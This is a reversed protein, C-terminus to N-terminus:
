YGAASLAGARRASVVNGKQEHLRRAEDLAAAAEDRRGALRLVEALDMRMDARDLLFETSDITEVGARALRLGEEVRGLSAAAWGRTCQASAIEALGTPDLLEVEAALREAEEWRAQFALARTLYSGVVQLQAKGGLQELTEYGRRLIEEAREPNGAILEIWGDAHAHRASEHAFGIEEFLSDRRATLARAEDFRGELAYLCAILGLLTARGALHGQLLQLVDECRRLAEARPTPGWVAVSALSSLGALEDRTSGVQRAHAISREWAARAATCRGQGWELWAVFDWARALGLGDGLGGLVDIAEEAVAQHETIAQPQISYRLYSLAVTARAEAQPDRGRAGEIALALVEEARPYEGAETLAYGLEASIEPLRV